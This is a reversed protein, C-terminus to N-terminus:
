SQGNVWLQAKTSEDGITATYEAEDDVVTKPIILKHVKGATDFSHLHIIM